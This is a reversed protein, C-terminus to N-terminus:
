RRGEGEEQQRGKRTAAPRQSSRTVAVKGGRVTSAVCSLEIRIKRQAKGSGTRRRWDNRARESGKERTGKKTKRIICNSCQKGL